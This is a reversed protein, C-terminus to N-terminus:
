PKASFTGMVADQVVGFEFVDAGFDFAVLLVGMLRLVSAGPETVGSNGVCIWRWETVIGRRCNTSGVEDGADGRGWRKSLNAIM